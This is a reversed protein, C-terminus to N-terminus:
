DNLINLFRAAVPDVAKHRAFGINKGSFTKRLLQWKATQLPVAASHQSVIFLEARVFLCYLFVLSLADKGNCRKETSELDVHQYVM